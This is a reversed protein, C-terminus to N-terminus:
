IGFGGHAFIDFTLTLCSFQRFSFWHRSLKNENLHYCSVSRIEFHFVLLCWYLIQRLQTAVELRVVYDPIIYRMARFDVRHAPRAVTPPERRPREILADSYEVQLPTSQHTTTNWHQQTKIIWRSQKRKLNHKVFTGIFRSNLDLSFTTM